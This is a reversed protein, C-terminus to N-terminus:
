VHLIETIIFLWLSWAMSVSFWFFTFDQFESYNSYSALPHLKVLSSRCRTEPYKNKIKCDIRELRTMWIIAFPKCLWGTNHSLYNDFCFLFFCFLFFFHEWLYSLTSQSLWKRVAPLYFFLASYAVIPFNWFMAYSTFFITLTSYSWSM